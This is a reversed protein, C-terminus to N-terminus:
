IGLLARYQPLVMDWTYKERVTRLGGEILRSRLAPDDIVREIAKTLAPPSGLPVLLGNIEHQIVDRIGPVDTGIVPVGAAMAEILVLGFGEAESPLVLLGIERLAEQPRRVIGMYAVAQWDDFPNRREVKSRLPGDGYVHLTVRDSIPQVAECLDLIRKVPDLRGIFGIPYDAPALVPIESRAFDAADVANPIVAFRERAISSRKHSIDVVSPSPVVIREAKASVIQQAIWHWGPRPQTTQISQFLRVNAPTALSAAVNAHVLFSLVTDIRRALILKRLRRAVMPLSLVHSANMATVDIGRAALQAGVPGLDKLSAVEIHTQADRLRTAVERVVTPTGGIELDTILLLIRRPM